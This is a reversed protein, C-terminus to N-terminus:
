SPIDEFHIQTIMAEIQENGVKESVYINELEQGKEERAIRWNKRINDATIPIRIEKKRLLDIASGIDLHLDKRLFYLDYFDRYRARQATARLKEACVELPHMVVPYLDINWVNRCLVPEVPLVINQRLDIELKINGPQGLLGPYQLREIKITYDSEYVKNVRFIGSTELVSRIEGLSVSSDMATFDLDESFRKQELYCHHIATGGKFVLKAQLPSSFVVQLALALYYDKEATQLPYALTRRNILELKRRTLRSGYTNESTNMM